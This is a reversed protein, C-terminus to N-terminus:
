RRLCSLDGEPLGLGGLAPLPSIWVSCPAASAQADGHVELAHCEGYLVRVLQDRGDGMQEAELKEPSRTIAHVRPPM